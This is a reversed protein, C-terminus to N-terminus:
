RCRCSPLWRSWSIAHARRPSPMSSGGPIVALASEGGALGNVVEHITGDGGCAVVLPFSRSAAGHALHTAEGPAATEELEVHWGRARLWDAAEQIQHTPPLGRAAPNIVFLARRSMSPIM